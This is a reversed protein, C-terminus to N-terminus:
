PFRRSPVEEEGKVFGELGEFGELGTKFGKIGRTVALGKLKNGGSEGIVM